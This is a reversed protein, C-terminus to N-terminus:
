TYCIDQWKKVSLPGEITQLLIVGPSAATFRYAAGRPLLAQHGRKCKVRGM